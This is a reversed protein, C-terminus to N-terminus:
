KLKFAMINKTKESPYAWAKEFTNFDVMRNEQPPLGPDHVILSDNTFGKIVVFHGAYGENNNLTHSNVNCIVVYDNELLQLIEKITPIRVESNIKKAFIEAYKIEQKIDTHRIQSEGVEKGFFDILYDGGQEAFQSYDFIEIDRVEFGHENLWLLGAMQWTWLGEIKATIKDLEEYSFEKEPWFFKLVMRFTAQFCHTNDQTNPYFPVDFNKM